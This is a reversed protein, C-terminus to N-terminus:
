WGFLVKDVLREGREGSHSHPVGQVAHWHRVCSLPYLLILRPVVFGASVLMVAQMSDGVQEEAFDARPKGTGDGLKEKIQEAAFIQFAKLPRRPGTAQKVERRHARRSALLGPYKQEFAAAEKEYRQADDAAVCSLNLLGPM